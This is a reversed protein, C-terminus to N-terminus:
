NDPPKLKIYGRFFVLRSMLNMNKTQNAFVILNIRDNLAWFVSLEFRLVTGNLGSGLPALPV